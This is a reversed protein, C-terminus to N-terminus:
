ESVFVRYDYPRVGFSITKDFSVKAYTFWEMYDGVIASDNIRLEYKRDSFNFLAFIKKSGAKRVFVLIDDSANSKVLNFDGGASGNWLVQNEKKLAALREYIFRFRNDKWDIEDKEFFSLRKNLGAEQGSYVLFMGPIIGTLVAFNETLEGLREYETGNWSNEDHNTIFRMRYSDKPYNKEEAKIMKYIKSAKEEGKAITNMLHMFDWSYTMDFAKEHMKASEDEALMFVPKIKELKPRLANWFEIPVMGAVDCRYGDIDFERVWYEMASTMYNWVKKNDFNLDIVDSWDAVPPVFNGKTDKTFFDPNTKTLENDWASHNAVWDIIIYMGLSHIEDVLEKFEEKTGYAPDIDFYDKVSYYSGVNGKRNLEGIPHIPMFWLIGVGLQKLRPLHERFEKISGSPTYQRLNVEYIFKDRSWETHKVTSKSQGFIFSFCSAIMFSLVFFSFFYEKIGTSKKM